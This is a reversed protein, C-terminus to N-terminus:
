NPYPLNVHFHNNHRQYNWDIVTPFYKELYDDRIHELVARVEPDDNDEVIYTRGDSYQFGSLDIGLGYAHSSRTNTGYINRDNFIGIHEIGIVGELALESCMAGLSAILDPHAWPGEHPILFKRERESEHYYFTIGALSTPCHVTGRPGLGEIPPLTWDPSPIEPRAHLAEIDAMTIYIRTSELQLNPAHARIMWDAGEMSDITTSAPVLKAENSCSQEELENEAFPGLPPPPPANNSTYVFSHTDDGNLEVGLNFVANIPANITPNLGTGSHVIITFDGEYERDALDILVWGEHNELERWDIDIFQRRIYWEDLISIKLRKETDPALLMRDIYISVADVTYPTYPPTFEVAYGMWTSIGEGSPEGEGYFCDEEYRLPFANATVPLVVDAVTIVALTLTILVYFRFRM